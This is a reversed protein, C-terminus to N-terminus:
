GSFIVKRDRRLRPVSRVPLHFRAHIVSALQQHSEHKATDRANVYNASLIYSVGVSKQERRIVDTM